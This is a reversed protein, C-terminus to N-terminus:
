SDEEILKILRKEYTELFELWLADDVFTNEGTEFLRISKGYTDNNWTHNGLFVDVKEKKLRRVSDLYAERCGDFDFTDKKMTNLGVGGFSGM